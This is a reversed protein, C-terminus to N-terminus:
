SARGVSTMAVTSLNAEMGHRGAVAARKLRSLGFSRVGGGSNIM